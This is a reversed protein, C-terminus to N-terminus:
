PCTARYTGSIATLSGSDASWSVHADRRCINSLNGYRTLSAERQSADLDTDPRFGSLWLERVLVAERSGPPFRDKLRQTFQPSEGRGVPSIGELLPPLSDANCGTLSAALFYCILASWLTKM